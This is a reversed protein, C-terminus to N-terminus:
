AGRLRRGAAGSAGFLKPDVQLLLEPSQYAARGLMVGDLKTLPEDCAELSILGGNIAIPWDPHARKLAYVLDFDLPPITRNDKPSLGELWAKRAHVISATPAPRACPKPSLSCRRTPIRSM